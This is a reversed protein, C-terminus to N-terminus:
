FFKGRSSEDFASLGLYPCQSDDLEPASEEDFEDLVVDLLPGGSRFLTTTWYDVVSQAERRDKESDLLRGTAQGCRRCHEVEAFSDATNGAARHQRLLESHAKRLSDVSPFPSTPESAAPRDTTTSM